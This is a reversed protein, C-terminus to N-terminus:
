RHRARGDMAVLAVTLAIAVMGATCAVVSSSQGVLVAHMLLIVGVSTSLGCAFTWAPRDQDYALCLGVGSVLAALLSIPLWVTLGLSDIDLAAGARQEAVIALTTVSIAVLVVLAIGIVPLGLPGRTALLSRGILVVAGVAALGWLFVTIALVIERQDAVIPLDSTASATVYLSALGLAPFLLVSAGVWLATRRPSRLPRPVARPVEHVVGIASQGEQEVM